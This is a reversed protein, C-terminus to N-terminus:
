ATTKEELLKYRRFKVPEKYLDKIADIDSLLRDETYEKTWYAKVYTRNSKIYKFGLSHMKGFKFGGDDYFKTKVKIEAFTQNHYIEIVIM